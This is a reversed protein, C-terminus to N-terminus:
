LRTSADRGDVCCRKHWALTQASWFLGAGPALCAASCSTAWGQAWVTSLCCAKCGTLSKIRTQFPASCPIGLPLVCESSSVPLFPTGTQVIHETLMRDVVCLWNPSRGLAQSLKRTRLGGMRHGAFVCVCVGLPLYPSGGM